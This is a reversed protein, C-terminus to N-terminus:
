HEIFVDTKEYWDACCSQIGEGGDSVSQKLEQGEKWGSLRSQNSLEFMGSGAAGSAVCPLRALVIRIHWVLRLAYIM